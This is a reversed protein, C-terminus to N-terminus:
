QRSAQAGFLRVLWLMPLVLFSGPVLLLVAYACWKTLERPPSRMLRNVAARAHDLYKM